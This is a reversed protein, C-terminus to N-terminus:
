ALDFNQSKRHVIHYQPLDRWTNRTGRGIIKAGVTGYEDSITIIMVMFMMMTWAPVISRIILTWYKRIMLITSIFLIPVGLSSTFLAGVEL